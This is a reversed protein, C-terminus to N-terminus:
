FMWPSLGSLISNVVHGYVVWFEPIVMNTILLFAVVLGFGARDLGQIVAAQQYPLLWALVRSGDLPPIPIMNFLMLAVNILVGYWVMLHIKEAISPGLLGQSWVVFPFFLLSWIVAQILNSTPGALAIIAFDRRGHSLAAYNVPVPKAWGLVVPSGLLALSVYVFAGLPDFHVIPNLSVRGLLRASNDGLRDAMWAHAAEHISIAMAFPPAMLILRNIAAVFDPSM